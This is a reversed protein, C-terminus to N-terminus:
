VVQISQHMMLEAHAACIHDVVDNLACPPQPRSLSHLEHTLCATGIFRQDRSHEVSEICRVAGAPVPVPGIIKRVAVRWYRQCSLADASIAHHAFETGAAHTIHIQCLAVIV